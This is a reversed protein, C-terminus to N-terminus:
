STKIKCEKIGGENINEKISKNSYCVQTISPHMTRCLCADKAYEQLHQISIVKEQCCVNQCYGTHMSLKQSQNTIVCRLPKVHNAYKSSFLQPVKNLHRLATQTAPITRAFLILPFNRFSYLFSLPLFQLTFMQIIQKEVQGTSKTVEMRRMINRQWRCM